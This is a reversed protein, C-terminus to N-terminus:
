CPTGLMEQLVLFRLGSTFELLNPDVKKEFYILEDRYKAVNERTLKIALLAAGVCRPKDSFDINKDNLISYLVVDNNTNNANAIRKLLAWESNNDKM